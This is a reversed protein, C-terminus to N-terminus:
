PAPPRPRAAMVLDRADVRGPNFANVATPAAYGISVGCLLKYQAPVEFAERVPPAWTALAGQACTSLGRVQAALLFSQLFLGADLVAFEALGRHVFLFMVTPAGFFEFNKRMQATRAPRDDRAIGLTQYLGLGSARRRPQLDEPYTLRTDFDGDPLGERIVLARLRALLGGSLLKAAADYRQTLQSKLADKLAGSAFAVRYPQTNSWSPAWRADDLVQDLVTQPVPTELFERVSRRARLVSSLVESSDPM